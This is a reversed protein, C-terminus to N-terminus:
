FLTIQNTETNPLAWDIPDMGWTKLQFNTRSFPKSGFFGRYASLPSPHVSKIVAHKDLDIMAEKQQAQKGWLIFVIPTEQDNLLTIIHDTLDEWGLGHHSNAQSMRVTLVTNLLLVGQKAWHSLDGHEAPPINLDTELEKYINRLSPPVKQDPHVSFALGNAQNEGHYPDQGLICVKVQGYPTLNLAQYIETQPPFITENQYEQNINELLQKYDDRQFYAGLQEQWHPELPIHM